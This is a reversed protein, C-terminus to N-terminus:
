EVSNLAKVLVFYVKDLASNASLNIIENKTIEDSNLVEKIALDM